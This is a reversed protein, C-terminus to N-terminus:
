KYLIYVRDGEQISIDTITRSQGTTSTEDYLIQRKTNNLSRDVVNVTLTNVDNRM